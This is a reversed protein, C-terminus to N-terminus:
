LAALTREGLLGFSAEVHAGTKASTVFWPASCREALAELQEDSVARQDELDAKNGLLLLPAGPNVEWFNRAYAPLSEATSPRTIDCVLIAGAAGLYYSRAVKDFKEGGALDWIMLTLSAQEAALAVSLVKRSVSVGITSLYTEDFRGEVFRRILSTKGVSIDGLLCIKKTYMAAM